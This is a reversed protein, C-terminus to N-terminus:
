RKSNWIEITKLTSFSNYVIAHPPKPMGVRVHCLAITENQQITHKIRIKIAMNKLVFYQNHPLSSMQVRAYLDGCIHVSM